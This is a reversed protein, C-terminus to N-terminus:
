RPNLWTSKQLTLLALVSLTHIRLPTLPVILYWPCNGTAIRVKLEALQARRLAARERAMRGAELLQQRRKIKIEDATAVAAAAAAASPAPQPPHVPPHTTTTPPPPPLPNTPNSIQHTATYCPLLQQQHKCRATMTHQAAIHPLTNPRCTSLGILVSFLAPSIHCFPKRTHIHWQTQPFPHRALKLTFPDAWASV